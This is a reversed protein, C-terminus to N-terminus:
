DDNNASVFKISVEHKLPKEPDGQVVTSALRAHIYPAAEKAPVCAATMAKLAKEIDPPDSEMAQRAVEHHFRMVGLMVDLPLVGEQTAKARAQQTAKNPAGVKRGANPRSGGRPM